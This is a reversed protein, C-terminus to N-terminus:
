ALKVRTNNAKNRENNCAKCAGLKNVNQSTRAHGRLCHTKRARTLYTEIVHCRVCMRKWDSVDKLYDGSINAWHYKRNDSVKCACCYNPKGLKRQIWDHRSRYEKIKYNAM